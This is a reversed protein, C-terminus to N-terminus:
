PLVLPAPLTHTCSTAFGIELSLYAASLFLVPILWPVAAFWFGPGCFGPRNSQFAVSLEGRQRCQCCLSLTTCPSPLLAEPLTQQARWASCLVSSRLSAQDAALNRNGYAFGSKFSSSLHDVPKQHQQQAGASVLVVVAPSDCHSAAGAPWASVSTLMLHAVSPCAPLVWLACHLPACSAWCCGRQGVWSPSASTRAAVPM